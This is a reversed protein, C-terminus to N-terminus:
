WPLPTYNVGRWWLEGEIQDAQERWDRYERVLYPKQGQPLADDTAMACRIAEHLMRLSSTTLREITM